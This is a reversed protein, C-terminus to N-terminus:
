DGALCFIGWPRLASLFSLLKCLACALPVVLPKGLGRQGSSHGLVQHRGVAQCSTQPAVAQETGSPAGAPESLDSLLGGHTESIWRCPGRLSLM